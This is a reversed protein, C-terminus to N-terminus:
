VLMNFIQCLLPKCILKHYKYVHLCTMFCLIQSKIFNPYQHHNESTWPELTAKGGVLISSPSTNFILKTEFMDYKYVDGNQMQVIIELYLTSIKSINPNSILMVMEESVDYNLPRTVYLEKKETLICTFDNGACIDEVTFGKDEFIYKPKYADGWLDVGLEDVYNSGFGFVTKKISLLITHKAGCAIKLIPEKSPIKIKQIHYIYQRKRGLGCQGERNDGYSYVNGHIDLFIAHEDGCSVDSINFKPKLKNLYETFVVITGGELILITCKGGCVIDLIKSNKLKQFKESEFTSVFRCKDMLDGVNKIYIEPKEIKKTAVYITGDYCLFYTGDYRSCFKKVNNGDFEKKFDKCINNEYKKFSKEPDCYYFDEAFPNSSM